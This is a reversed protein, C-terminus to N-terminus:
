LNGIKIQYCIEGLILGVLIYPWIYKLFRGWAKWDRLAEWDSIM